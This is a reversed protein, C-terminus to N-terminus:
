CVLRLPYNLHTCTMRLFNNKLRGRWSYISVYAKTRYHQKAAKNNCGNCSPTILIM